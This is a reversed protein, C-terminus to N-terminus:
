RVQYEMSWLLRSSHNNIFNNSSVPISWRLKGNLQGQLMSVDWGLGVSSLTAKDNINGAYHKGFALDAMLVFVGMQQQEPFLRLESGLFLGRDASFDSRYFGGVRHEGGGLGLELSAPMVSDSLQAVLSLRLEQQGQLGPLDLLKEIQGNLRARWFTKDQGVIAGSSINGFDLELRINSRTRYVDSVLDAELAGLVYWLKQTESPMISGNADAARLKLTQFSNGVQLNWSHARSRKMTHKVAVRFIRSGNGIQPSVDEFGFNSNTLGLNLTTALDFVPIQYDLYGRDSQGSDWSHLIGAELRDGRSAPNNWSGVAIARQLGTQRDGHNDLSLQSTWPQSKNLILDLRTGGLSEGAVFNAQVDLGPLDNILFLASEIESAKVTQGLLGSFQKEFLGSNSQESGNFRVEELQGPLVTFAVRKEVTQAPVFAVTVPMGNVRYFQALNNAVQELQVLSPGRRTKQSQVLAVLADGESGSIGAKREHLSLSQLFIALEALERDTFGHSKVEIEKELMSFQKALFADVQEPSLTLGQLEHFNEVYFGDVDLRMSTAPNPDRANVGPIKELAFVDQATSLLGLIVVVVSVLVWRVYGPRRDSPAPEKRDKQVRRRQETADEDLTFSGPNEHARVVEARIDRYAQLSMEGAAYAKVVRRLRLSDPSLQMLSM